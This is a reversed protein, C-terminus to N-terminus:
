DDLKRLIAAFILGLQDAESILELRKKEADENEYVLLHRLWYSSEKAEKKSIRIKM